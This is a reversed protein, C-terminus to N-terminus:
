CDSGRTKNRWKRKITVHVLNRSRSVAADEGAKARGKKKKKGAAFLSSV